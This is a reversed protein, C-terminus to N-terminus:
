GSSSTDDRLLRRVASINNGIRKAQGASQDALEGIQGAIVAFGRGLDGARTAEVRANAALVRLTRLSQIILDTENLILGAAETLKQLREHERQEARYRADINFVFGEIFLLTGQEDFVGAGSEQVWLERGDRHVVRYCLQWGRREALAKEAELSFREVDEQPTMSVISRRVNGIFDAPPYGTLNHV